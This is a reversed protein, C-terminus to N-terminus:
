PQIWVAAAPAAAAVVVLSAVVAVGIWVLAAAV